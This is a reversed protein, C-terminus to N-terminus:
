DWLTRDVLLSMGGGGSSSGAYTYAASAKNAPLRWTKKSADPLRLCGFQDVLISLCAIGAPILSRPAEHRSLLWSRCRFRLRCYDSRTFSSLSTGALKKRKNTTLSFHLAATLRDSITSSREGTRLHRLVLKRFAQMSNGRSTNPSSM